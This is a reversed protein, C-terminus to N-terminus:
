EINAVRFGMHCEFQDPIKEELKLIAQGCRLRGQRWRPQGSQDAMLCNQCVQQPSLLQEGALIVLM